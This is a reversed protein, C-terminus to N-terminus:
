RRRAAVRLALTRTAAGNANAARVTFFYSGPALGRGLRTLRNRGAKGTLRRLTRVRRTGSRRMTVRVSAPESLWFALATAKGQRVRRPTLAARTISPPSGPCGGISVRSGTEQHGGAQSTFRGVLDYNGCRGPVTVLARGRADLHLSFRTATAGPLDELVLEQGGAIHELRGVIDEDLVVPVLANRLFILIRPNEGTLGGYFADGSFDGFSTTTAASGIRSAAPCAKAAEADADCSPWSLVGPGIAFGPLSLRLSRTAEEGAEQTVDLALAAGSAATPPDITVTMRPAYAAQAGAVGLLSFAAAVSVAIAIRRPLSTL